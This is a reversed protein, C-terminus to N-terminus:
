NDSDSDSDSDLIICESDAESATPTWRNYQESTSTPTVVPPPHSTTNDGTIQVDSDSDSHSDSDSNFEPHIEADTTSSDSRPSVSYTWVIADLHRQLITIDYQKRMYFLTRFLYLHDPCTRCRWLTLEVICFGDERSSNIDVRARSDRMSNVFRQIIDSIRHQYQEAPNSQVM